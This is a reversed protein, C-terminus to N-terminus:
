PTTGEESTLARGSFALVARDFQKQEAYYSGTLRLAEARVAEDTSMTAVRRCIGLAQPGEEYAMHIRAKQLEARNLLEADSTEEALRQLWELAEDYRRLDVLFRARELLLAAARSPTDAERIARDLVPLAMEELGAQEYASLLTPLGEWYQRTYGFTACTMDGLLVARVRDGVRVYAEVLDRCADMAQEGNMPWSSLFFEYRRVATDYQGANLAMRASRYDAMRAYETGPFRTRVELYREQVELPSSGSRELCYAINYLVRPVMPDSVEDALARRFCSVAEEYKGLEVQCQALWFFAPRQLPNEGRSDAVERLVDEARAWDEEEAYIRGAVYLGYLSWVTGPFGECLVDLQDLAMTTRADCVLVHAFAYYAESLQKSEPYLIMFEQLTWLATKVMDEVSAPKGSLPGIRFSEERVDLQLGVSGLVMELAHQPSVADMRAIVPYTVSDQYGVQMGTAESIRQLLADLPAAEAVVYLEGSEYRVQLTGDGYKGTTVLIDDLMLPRCGAAGQGLRPPAVGYIEGARDTQALFQRARAMARMYALWRNLVMQDSYRATNVRLLYLHRWFEGWQEAEFLARISAILAHKWLEDGPRAVARLSECERVAEAHKGRGLQACSLKYRGFLTEAVGADERECAQQYFRAAQDYQGGAMCVDGREILEEYDLLLEPEETEDETQVESQTVPQERSEAVRQPPKAQRRSRVSGLLVGVFVLVSLIVVGMFARFPVQGVFPMTVSYIESPIVDKAAVPEDESPGPPSVESEVVSEDKPEGESEGEPGHSEASDDSSAEQWETEHADEQGEPPDTVPSDEPNSEPM